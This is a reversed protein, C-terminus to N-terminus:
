DKGYAVNKDISKASLFLSPFRILYQQIKTHPSGAQLTNQCACQSSGIGTDIDQQKRQLLAGTSGVQSACIMHAM